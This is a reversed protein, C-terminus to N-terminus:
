VHDDFRTGGSSAPRPVQRVYRHAHGRSANRATSQGARQLPSLSSTQSRSSSRPATRISGISVCCAPSSIVCCTPRAPTSRQKCGDHAVPMFRIGTPRLAPHAAGDLVIRRKQNAADAQLRGEYVADSIFRCIDEHMRYSTPLFIGHDAPVTARGDLLYDLASEGLREPHSGQIPQGLQMHDGLLVLNRAATAVALLNALSVRGAEDVFLYDISGEFAPDAFLWATGAVLQAGTALADGNTRVSRIHASEYTSDIDNSSSKKVGEFKFNAREEV